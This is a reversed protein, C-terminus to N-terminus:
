RDDATMVQEAKNDKIYGHGGYAQIGLDAAEKGAETLFGKLIPTLFALREDVQNCACNPDLVCAILPWSLGHSAMHLWSLGHSAM